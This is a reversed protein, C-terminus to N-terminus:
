RSATPTSLIVTYPGQWHPELNDPYHRKVWVLDGPEYPTGLPSDSTSAGQAQQVASHIQKLNQQLPQLSQFLDHNSINILTGERLRPIIPPPLGHLIEFPTFGHRYPTCRVRLLGAPLLNVWGDSTELSFKTLLEKLTCNMRDVQGSSQPRYACHLKWKIQLAKAILKSIKATFAPGNDSGLILPLGFRPVIEQLLKKVTIQATETKTPFAETWGSFMDVM